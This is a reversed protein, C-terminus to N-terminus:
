IRVNPWSASGRCRGYTRGALPSFTLISPWPRMPDRGGSESKEARTPPSLRARRGASAPTRAEPRPASRDDVAAKASQPPVGPTFMMAERPSVQKALPAYIEVVTIAPWAVPAPETRVLSVPSLKFGAENVVDPAPTGAM